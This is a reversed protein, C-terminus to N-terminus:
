PEVQRGRGSFGASPDGTGDTDKMPDQDAPLVQDARIQIYNYGRVAITVGEDQTWDVKASKVKFQTIFGADTYAKSYAAALDDDMGLAKCFEQCRQQSQMLNEIRTLTAEESDEDGRRTLVEITYGARLDLLDPDENGGGFSALNRTKMEVEVEHRGQEEYYAQALRALQTKDTIGSVPIVKWKEDPQGTGPLVYKARAAKTPFRAVLLNKSANGADFCHVEINEVKRKAYNRRIKLSQLNQGYIMRRYDFSVGTPLTRGHFPDTQPRVIESTTFTRVGQIVVDTGDLFLLHAIAGMVDSLYDWVSPKSDAGGGGGGAPIPGLLTMLATGGLLDKLRPKKIGAPRYVVSLGEFAPFNSLYIAVAEDVEKTGDLALRAPRETDLILRTNDSCELRITPEGDDWEVDWTDVWGRFRSNTRAQGSPDVYTDPVLMLSEHGSPTFRPSGEVGAAFDDGPVTGLFYEVAVSRLCRPDFPADIYKISLSLQDAARVGNLQLAAERPIATVDFTLGDPSRAQQQPPLVRQGGASPLQQATDQAVLVFATTGDAQTQLVPTLPSRAVKTGQLNKTTKPPAARLRTAQGFEDLRITLRVKASPFFDQPPWERPM